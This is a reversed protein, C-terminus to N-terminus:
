GERLVHMRAQTPRKGCDSYLLRLHESAGRDQYEGQGASGEGGDFADFDDFAAVNEIAGCKTRGAGVFADEGLGVEGDIRLKAWIAYDGVDVQGGAIFGALYFEGGFEVDQLWAIGGLAVARRQDFDRIASALAQEAHEIKSM